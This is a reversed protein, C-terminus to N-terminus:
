LDALREARAEDDVGLAVDDGVVVHNLLGVLNIYLEGGVRVALIQATRGAYDAYVLRGVQCHDFDVDTGRQRDDLKAVGVHRLHAVPNFGNAAGERQRLGDGG